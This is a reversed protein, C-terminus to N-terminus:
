NAINSNSRGAAAALAVLDVLAAAETLHLLYYKREDTASRECLLWRDGRGKTPRACRV